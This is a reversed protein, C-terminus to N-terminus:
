IMCFFLFFEGQIFINENIRECHFHLYPLKFKIPTRNYMQNFVFWSRACFLAFIFFFDWRLKKNTKIGIHRVQEFYAFIRLCIQMSPPSFLLQLRQLHFSKGLFIWGFRSLQSPRSSSSQSFPPCSPCPFLPLFSMLLSLFSMTLSLFSLFVLNFFM